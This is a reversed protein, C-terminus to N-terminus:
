WVDERESWAGGEKLYAFQEQRAAYDLDGDKGLSIHGHGQMNSQGALIFVKVPKRDEAGSATPPRLAVSVATLLLVLSTSRFWAM